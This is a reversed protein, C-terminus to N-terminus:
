CTVKGVTEESFGWDELSGHNELLAKHRSFGGKRSFVEQVKGHLEPVFQRVFDWVLRTGLGLNQGHPIEIYDEDEFADDPIEDLDSMQSQWFTEGTSKRISATHEYPRGSNVFVFATEINQLKM